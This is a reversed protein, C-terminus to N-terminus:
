KSPAKAAAAVALRVKRMAEKAANKACAEDSPTLKEGPFMHTSENNIQKCAESAAINVRKEAAALGAKTTMDLDDFSVEYSFSFSTIPIGAYTQGAAQEVVQSAQVTIKGVKQDDAFSQGTLVGLTAIAAVIVLMKKM